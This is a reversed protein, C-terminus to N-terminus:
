REVCASIDDCYRQVCEDFSAYPYGTLKGVREGEDFWSRISSAFDEGAIIAGAERAIGVDRSLVPKGAALAEIITRGYGEYASTVLVLDATAYYPAADQEGEFFTNPTAIKELARRESGDGVIILCADDPAAIAFSRIALAVDKEKQLRSVVLVRKKFHAFRATLDGPKADQYRAIDVFIPLSSISAASHREAISRRVRESVARIRTARRFVFSALRLRIRDLFSSAFAPAYLDTHVQVHLPAKYWSAICVGAIGSEFPDQVTIVDPRALKRAIRLADWIYFLRSRSATPYVHVDNSLTTPSLKQSALSFVIIDLRVFHRGYAIHRVASDSGPRFLSRDSGISLVNM